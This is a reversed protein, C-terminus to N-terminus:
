DVGNEKKGNVWGWVGDMEFPSSCKRLGRAGHVYSRTIPSGWYLARYNWITVGGGEVGGRQGRGV